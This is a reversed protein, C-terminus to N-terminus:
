ASTHGGVSGMRPAQHQFKESINIHNGLKGRDNLYISSIGNEVSVAATTLTYTPNHSPFGFIGYIVSLVRGTLCRDKQILMVKTADM